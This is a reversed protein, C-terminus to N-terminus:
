IGDYVLVDNGTSNDRVLFQINSDGFSSDHDPKVVFKTCGYTLTCHLFEEQYGNHFDYLQLFDRKIDGGHPIVEVSRQAGQTADTDVDYRTASLFDHVKVYNVAAGVPM